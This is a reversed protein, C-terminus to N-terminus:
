SIARASSRSSGRGLVSMRIGYIFYIAIGGSLYALFFTRTTPTAMLSTLLLLCMCAGLVPTLPYLPTKFPRVLSPDSIRLYIVTICVRRRVHHRVNAPPVRPQLADRPAHAAGRAPRLTARHSRHRDGHRAPVPTMSRITRWIHTVPNSGAVDVDWIRSRTTRAQDLFNLFGKLFLIICAYPTRARGGM